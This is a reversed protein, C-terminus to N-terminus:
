LIEWEESIFNPTWTNLVSHHSIIMCSRVDWSYADDVVYEVRKRIDDTMEHQEPPNLFDSLITRGVKTYERIKNLICEAEVTNSYYIIDLQETLDKFECLRTNKSDVSVFVVPM